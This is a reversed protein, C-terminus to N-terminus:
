RQQRRRLRRGEPPGEYPRRWLRYALLLAIAGLAIPVLFFPVLGTRGAGVLAVAGLMGLVAFLGAGITAAYLLSRDAPRDSESELAQLRADAPLDTVRAAEGARDDTSAHPEVAQSPDLQLARGLEAASLRLRVALAGHDVEAVDDWPVARRDHTLPPLGGEILLYLDKQRRLLSAVKGAPEGQATYAAYGELGSAGAGVPPHEYTWQAKSM